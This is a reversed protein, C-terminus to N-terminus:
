VNGRSHSQKNPFACTCGVSVNITTNVHCYSGSGDDTRYFVPMKIKIPLSKVHGRLPNKTLCSKCSCLAIDIVSPIRDHDEHKHYTWPSLSREHLHSANHPGTCNNDLSENHDKEVKDISGSVNHNKLFNSSIHASCTYIHGEDRKLRRKQRDCLSLGCFSLLMALIM